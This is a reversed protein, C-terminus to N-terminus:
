NLYKVHYNPCVAVGHTCSLTIITVSSQTQPMYQKQLHAENRGVSPDEPRLKHSFHTMLEMYYSISKFPCTSLELVCGESLSSMKLKSDSSSSKGGQM